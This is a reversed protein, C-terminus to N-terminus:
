KLLKQLSHRGLIYLFDGLKRDHLPSMNIWIIATILEVKRLDFGNKNCFSHLIKQADIFRKSCLIDIKTEKGTEEIQFNGGNVIDHNVILNHNMKSLDYYADGFSISGAFDQRWDILSFNKDSDLIVNELIFDGHFLSMHSDQSIYDYAADVLSHVPRIRLGNVVTECDLLNRQKLYKEIRSKTKELYFERYLMIHDVHGRKSWLRQNAWNLLNEMMEDNFNEHRSLIEGEVKKYRYFNESSYDISPCSESLHEVRKLRSSVIERDHFFKIVSDKIFFISEEPKDLVNIDEKMSEKARRLGDINGIDLWGNSKIYQFKLGQKIMSNMAHCDSLNSDGSNALLFSLSNWFSKFDKIYSKGIYADGAEGKEKIIEVFSGRTAVTRYHSVDKQSSIWICNEEPIKNDECSVLVTDCAHFLFPSQLHDSACLMSHALSSGQGEYKEVEVFTVNADAHAIQIYQRVHSSYHGTTIVFQTNEPYSDIIHSIAPKSGIRVLSKNTFNTIEGLRSGLGSCTILVKIDEMTTKSELLITKEM